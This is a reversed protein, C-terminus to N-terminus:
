LGMRTPTAVTRGVVVIGILGDLLGSLVAPHVSSHVFLALFCGTVMAIVTSWEKEPFRGALFIARGMKRVFREFLPVTVNSEASRAPSSYGDVDPDLTEGFGEEEGEEEVSVASALGHADRWELAAVIRRFADTAEEFRVADGSPVDPHCARAAQRYKHKATSLKDTPSIGLLVWDEQTPLELTAMRCFKAGLQSVGSM